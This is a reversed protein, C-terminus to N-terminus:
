EFNGGGKEFPFKLDPFLTGNILAEDESFVEGWQQVPVYAMALPTHQPFRSMNGTMGNSVNNNQMNFSNEREHLILGNMDDFLNFNM